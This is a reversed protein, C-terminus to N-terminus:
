RFYKMSSKKLEKTSYLIEYELDNIKTNIQDIFEECEQFSRGHIMTFINYPWGHYVARQYCHTIQDFSAFFSGVEEISEDPVKWVVMANAAFGSKRHNLAIGIRRIVGAARYEEIKTLLVQESISLEDALLKYPEPVLPMDEQLKRIISKDLESFM